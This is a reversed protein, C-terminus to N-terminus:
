TRRGKTAGQGNVAEFLAGFALAVLAWGVLLTRFACSHTPNWQYMENADDIKEQWYERYAKRMLEAEDEAEKKGALAAALQENNQRRIEQAVLADILTSHIEQGEHSAILGNM